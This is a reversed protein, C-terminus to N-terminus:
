TRMAARMVQDLLTALSASTASDPGPDFALSDRLRGDADIVFANNSHAVMAGADLTQVQVGYANWEGTLQSLSGTLFYWNPTTDLREQRDFAQVFSVDRYIPNAVIAIFATKRTAAAGLRTDAQLFEQAIVPCDTTCVPDLFTLAITRGRFSSLSVPTGRQDVLSFAPAPSDSPQPQGNVGEALIADTRTNVTAFAMPVAGVLLVGFAGLAAAVGLARTVGAHALGPTGSPAQHPRAGPVPAAVAAGDEMEAAALVPQHVLGLYGAGIILLMPIMSGPDTGVGGLFGLDQVVVWVALCFVVAVVVGARVLDPRGSLFAAGLFALVAVVFLNVGWGHAADFSAFSHLLSALAGPQPTQAMSQMMSTLSGAVAKPNTQGQWFGRGPWAQLVAMGLFFLGMVALVVRGVQRGIWAREPLAVLVGAGCYLLVAGPAGFLWSSGPGFIGGFAEGFVWVLVGWAVSAVGALQSLQGRPSVLLLVGIGVQIWVVATAAPVPHRNWVSLGDNVLRVVWGPSGVAAPQVVLTPMGLVMGSQVQLVGDLIWLLGFGIRLLRRAPHELSGSRRGGALALSRGAGVTAAWAPIAVALLLAV